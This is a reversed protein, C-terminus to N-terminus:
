GSLCIGKGTGVIPVLHIIPAITAPCTRTWSKLRDRDDAITERGMSRQQVSIAGVGLPGSAIREEV